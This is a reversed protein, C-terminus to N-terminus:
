PAIAKMLASVVLTLAAIELYRGANWRWSGRTSM